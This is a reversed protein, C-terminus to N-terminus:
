RVKDLYKFCQSHLINGAFFTDNFVCRSAGNTFCTGCYIVKDHGVHFATVSIIPLGYCTSLVPFM